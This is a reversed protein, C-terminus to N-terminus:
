SHLGLSSFKISSVLCTHLGSITTTSLPHHLSSSSNLCQSWWSSTIYKSDPHFNNGFLPSMSHCITTAVILTRFPLRPSKTFHFPLLRLSSHELPITHLSLFILFHFENAFHSDFCLFFLHYINSLICTSSSNSSCPLPLLM